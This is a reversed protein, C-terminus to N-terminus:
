IDDSLRAIDRAVVDFRFAVGDVIEADVAKVEEVDRERDVLRESDLHREFLPRLLDVLSLRRGVLVEYQLVKARPDVFEDRGLAAHFELSAIRRSYKRRMSRM